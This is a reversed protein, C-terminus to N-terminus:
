EERVEDDSSVVAVRRTTLVGVAFLGAPVLVWQGAPQGAWHSARRLVSYRAPGPLSDPAPVHPPLQAASALPLGLLLLLLTGM